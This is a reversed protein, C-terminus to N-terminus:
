LSVGVATAIGQRLVNMAANVANEVAVIGLGQITLLIARSANKQVDLVLKAETADITGKKIGAALMVATRAMKEAEAKGYDRAQAAGAKLFPLAAKGMDKVLAELDISAM